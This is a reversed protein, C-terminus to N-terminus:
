PRQYSIHVARYNDPLGKAKSICYVRNNSVHLKHLGDLRCDNNIYGNAPVLVLDNKVVSSGVYAEYDYFTQSELVWNKVLYSRKNSYTDKDLHCNVIYDWFYDFCAKQSKFRRIHDPTILVADFLSMYMYQKGQPNLVRFYGWKSTRALLTDVGQSARKITQKVESQTLYTRLIM